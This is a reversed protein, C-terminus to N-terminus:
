RFLPCLYQKATENGFESFSNTAYKSRDPDLSDPPQAFAQLASLALLICLFRKM